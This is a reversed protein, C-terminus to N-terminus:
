LFLYALTKLGLPQGWILLQVFRRTDSLTRLIISLEWGRSILKRKMLAYFDDIIIQNIFFRLWDTLLYETNCKSQEFIEAYECM